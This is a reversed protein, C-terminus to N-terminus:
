EEERFWKKVVSGTGNSLEAWNDTDFCLQVIGCTPLEGIEAKTLYEAIYTFGPNHGFLMINNKSNDLNNIVSLLTRASAEYIEPEHVIDEEEINFVEAFYRATSLARLATSSVILDPKQIETGIIRALRPADTHGENSLERHFDNQGFGIKEAKAHRVLYLNKM